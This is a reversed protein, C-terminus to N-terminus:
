FWRQPNGMSVTCDDALIPVGQIPLAEKVEEPTYNFKNAIHTVLRHLQEETLLDLDLEYILATKIGPLSAQSPIPSKVCLTTTGMIEQWEAAREPDFVTVKFDRSM